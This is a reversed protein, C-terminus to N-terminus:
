VPFACPCPSDVGVLFFRPPSERTEHKGANPVVALALANAMQEKNLGMVRGAGAASALAVYLVYDWGTDIMHSCADGVREQVEYVLVIGAIASRMDAGAYEAAALVPLINDSPHGGKRAESKDNFDFYRAMVANAFAALEPASKHRSGLVTSGPTSTVELAHARAIKSPIMMYSGMACWMTDIFRQRVQHTVSEPLKEYSISVAYDSLTDLIRDM